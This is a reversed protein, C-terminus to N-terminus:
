VACGKGRGKRPLLMGRPMEHRTGSSGSDSKDPELNCTITGGTHPNQSTLRAATSWSPKRDELRIKLINGSERKPTSSLTQVVKQKRLPRRSILLDKIRKAKRRGTGREEVTPTLKVVGRTGGGEILRLAAPIAGGRKPLISIRPTSGEKLRAGHVDKEKRQKLSV